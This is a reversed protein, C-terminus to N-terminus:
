LKPILELDIEGNEGPHFARMWTNELIPEDGKQKLDELMQDAHEAYEAFVTRWYPYEGRCLKRLLHDDTQPYREGGWWIFYTGKPFVQATHFTPPLCVPLDRKLRAVEYVELEAYDLGQESADVAARNLVKCLRTFDSESTCFVLSEQHGM